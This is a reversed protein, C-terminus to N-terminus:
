REVPTTDEASRLADRAKKEASSCEGLLRGLTLRVSVEELQAIVLDRGLPTSVSAWSTKIAADQSKTPSITEKIGGANKVSTPRAKEDAAPSTNGPSSQLDLDRCRRPKESPKTSSSYGQHPPNSGSDEVPEASAVVLSLVKRAKELFFVANELCERAANPDFSQRGRRGVGRIRRMGVSSGATHQPPLYEGSPSHPERDPIMAVAWRRVWQRAHRRLVFSLSASAGITDLLNMACSPLERAVLRSPPLKGQRREGSAESIGISGPATVTPMPTVATTSAAPIVEKTVCAAHGESAGMESAVGDAGIFSLTPAEVPTLGPSWSRESISTDPLNDALLCFCRLVSMPSFILFFLASDDMLARISDNNRLPTERPGRTPFASRPINKSGRATSYLCWLATIRHNPVRM